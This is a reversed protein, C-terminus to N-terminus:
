RQILKERKNAENSVQQMAHLEINIALRCKNTEPMYCLCVYFLLLSNRPINM